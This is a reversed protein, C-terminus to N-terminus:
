KMYEIKRLKLKYNDEGELKGYFDGLMIKLRYKQIQHPEQKLEENFVTRRDIKNEAPTHM